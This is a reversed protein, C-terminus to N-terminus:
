ARGINLLQLQEAAPPIKFFYGIINFPDPTKIVYSPFGQSAVFSMFSKPSFGTKHAYFENGHQEIERSWGYIVDRVLIPGTPCAYLEDDLDLHRQVMLQIAGLVNPVIIEAFGDPKLVHRFGALVQVGHHRHYHELNHSCYVADYTSPPLTNLDRADLIIDPKVTGDIDLLDHTWGKYHAPIPFEKSGGGVNLVRKVLMAWTRTEPDCVNDSLDLRYPAISIIALTTAVAVPL